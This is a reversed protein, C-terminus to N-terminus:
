KNGLLYMAIAGAISVNLSEIEEIHIKIKKDAIKIAEESVGHAENGLVLVHKNNPTIDKIDDADKLSTVLIQYGEKKLKNLYSIDKTIINLKFIAGQSAQVVKENYLYCSNKSLIIDKYGFALASRFITGMNGPDSVDDLYLVHSSSIEKEEKIRCLALVGQSSKNKSIKDMIESTVIFQPIDSPIDKIEKTTFIQDVVKSELAMELLHFGEVIFLGKENKYSKDSLKVIEKIKDNQKSSILFVM